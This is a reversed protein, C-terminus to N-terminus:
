EDENDILQKPTIDKPLNKRGNDPLLVQVKIHNNVEVEGSVELTRLKAHDYSLLELMTDIAKFRDKPEDMDLKKYVYLVEDLADLGQEALKQAITQKVNVSGKKRGSNPLKKQGKKFM